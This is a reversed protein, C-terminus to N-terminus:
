VNKGCWLLYNRMIEGTENDAFFVKDKKFLDYIKQEARTTPKNIFRRWNSRYDFETSYILDTDTYKLETTKPHVFIFSGNESNVVDCHLIQDNFQIFFTFLIDRPVYKLPLHPYIDIEWSGSTIMNLKPNDFAFYVDSQKGQKNSATYEVAVKLDSEGYRYLDITGQKMKMANTLGMEAFYPCYKNVTNGCMFITVDKRQRIITSLTNMFLVFEDPLYASRSLFEDFLITTIDPYSTSKDHEMTSISFAYAIPKEELIERKRNETYRCLYWRSGYYYVDTWEGSSLQSILGNAVLANFMTQGKKGTFDDRWRRVIAIQKGTEFYQRIGYELVAYTKGNSREGFIVNYQAKHKLINKLNYYKMTEGRVINTTEAGSISYSISLNM